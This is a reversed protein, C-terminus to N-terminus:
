FGFYKYITNAYTYFMVQNVITDDKLVFEQPPTPSLSDASETDKLRVHSIQLPKGGVTWESTTGDRNIEIFHSEELSKQFQDDKTPAKFIIFALTVQSIKILTKYRRIDM